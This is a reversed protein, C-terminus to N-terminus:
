TSARSPAQQLLVGRWGLGPYTEYGPTLAQAVVTGDPRLEHSVAPLDAPLDVRETLVGLGDSAAIVRRDADILLARTRAREEEDLRLEKLVGEALPDWDFHIGLVGIVEGNVEGDRRIAAAYTATRAQGLRPEDRVDAVTYEEGSRTVLAERFWPEGAVTMGAVGPYRQPRGNALVEGDTDCVWLDLYVTYSSLIVGLRRSAHAATEGRPQTCADVFASDTAWWRVDATREFLNRDVTEIANLALDALRTGRVLRVLDEGLRELEGTRQALETGLGVALTSIRESVAKVEEAVVAFGRGAEGARASEIMANLALMKTHGMLAQIDIVARDSIDRVQRTVEVVREPM